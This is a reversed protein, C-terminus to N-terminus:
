EPNKVVGYALHRLYSIDDVNGRVDATLYGKAFDKIAENMKDKAAKIKGKLVPNKRLATGEYDTSMPPVIFSAQYKSWLNLPSNDHHDIEEEQVYGSSDGERIVQDRITNLRDYQAKAEEIGTRLKISNPDAIATTVFALTLLFLSYYKKMEKREIKIVRM